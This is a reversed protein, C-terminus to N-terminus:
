AAAKTLVIEVLLQDGRNITDARGTTPPDSAIPTFTAALGRLDRASKTAVSNCRVHVEAAAHRPHAPVSRSM